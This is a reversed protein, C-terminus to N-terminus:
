DVHKAIQLSLSIDDDTEFCFYKGVQVLVHKNGLGFCLHSEQHTFWRGHWVVCRTGASSASERHQM